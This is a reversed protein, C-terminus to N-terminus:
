RTAPAASAADLRAHITAASVLGVIRDVVEGHRFVLLTPLSRIAYRSALEPEADVDVKAVVADGRRAAAVDALIPALAKCPGCWGAWFDVLVPTRHSAALVEFTFTDATVASLVIAPTTINTNM